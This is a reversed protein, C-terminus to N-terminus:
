LCITNNETLFVMAREAHSVAKLLYTRDNELAQLWSKLYAASSTMPSKIGLHACIFTSGLEAVLEEFAYEPTGRGGFKRNLRTESGSWHVLEHFLAGYYGEPTNFQKPSPMQIKDKSPNYHASNGAVHVIKAGTSEIVQEAIAYRSIDPIKALQAEILENPLGETQAVNFVFYLKLFRKTKIGAESYSSIGPNIAKAEAYIQRAADKSVTNGRSDTYLTESFTIMTSREGKKVLGGAKGIQKFTMWSNFSYNREYLELSLLLQNLNSYTHKSQPNYALGSLPIWYEIDGNTVKEILDLLKATVEQIVNTKEM